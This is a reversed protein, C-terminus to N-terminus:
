FACGTPLPETEALELAFDPALTAPSFGTTFSGKMAQPQYGTPEMHSRVIVVEDAGMEVPGGSRTFPQENVHSHALIRRYLLTGDETIVEWWNAYQDCGTEDSAITVSFSYSDAGEQSASVEIVGSAEDNDATQTEEIEVKSSSNEDVSAVPSATTCSGILLGTLVTCLLSRMM